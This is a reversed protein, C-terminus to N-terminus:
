SKRCGQLYFFANMRSSFTRRQTTIASEMGTAMPLASLLLFLIPCSYQETSGPLKENLVGGILEDRKLRLDM